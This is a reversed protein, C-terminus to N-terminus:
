EGISEAFQPGIKDAIERFIIESLYYGSNIKEKISDVTKRRDEGTKWLFKGKIQKGQV